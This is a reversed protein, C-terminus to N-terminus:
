STQTVGTVIPTAPVAAPPVPPGSAATFSFPASPLSSAGDTGVGVVTLEVADLPNCSIGSDLPVTTAPGPTTGDQPTTTFTLQYTAVAPDIPSVQVSYTLMNHEPLIRVDPHRYQPLLTVGAIIPTMPIPRHGAQFALAVAIAMFAPLRDWRGDGVAEHGEVRWTSWLFRHRTLIVVAQELTM